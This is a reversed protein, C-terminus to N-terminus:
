EATQGWHNAFPAFDFENILDDQSDSIDCQGRWDPEGLLVGPCVAPMLLVLVATLCSRFERFQVNIKMKRGGPKNAETM